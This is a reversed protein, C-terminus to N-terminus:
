RQSGPTIYIVKVGNNEPVPSVLENNKQVVSYVIFALIGLGMAVLIYGFKKM